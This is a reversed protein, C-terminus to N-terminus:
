VGHRFCNKELDEPIINNKCMMYEQLYKEERWHLFKTKNLIIKDYAVRMQRAVIIFPMSGSLACLGPISVTRIDSNLMCNILIARMSLFANFSNMVNEPVRMTPSTILYKYIKNGTLTTIANGVPLEGFFESNIKDRIKNEIEIGFYDRIKGDLGGDMIGFSNAPSVIADAPINFISDNIININEYDYFENKWSSIMNENIDILNIIM